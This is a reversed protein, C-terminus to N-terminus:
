QPLYVVKKHKKKKKKKNTNVIVRLFKIMPKDPVVGAEFPSLLAENIMDQLDQYSLKEEEPFDITIEALIKRM